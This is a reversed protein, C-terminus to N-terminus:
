SASASQVSLAAIITNDNLFMAFRLGAVALPRLLSFRPVLPIPPVTACEGRVKVLLWAVDTDLPSSFTHPRCASTTFIQSIHDVSKCHNPAQTTETTLLPHGVRDTEVILGTWDLEDWLLM